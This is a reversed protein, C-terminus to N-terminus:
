ILARLEVRDLIVCTHCDQYTTAAARAETTTVWFDLQLTANSSWTLADAGVHFHGYSALNWLFGYGKSGPNPATGLRGCVRSIHAVTRPM